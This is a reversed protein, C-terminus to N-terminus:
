GAGSSRDEFSRFAGSVGVHDIRVVSLRGFYYTIAFYQAFDLV